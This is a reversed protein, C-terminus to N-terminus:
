LRLERAADINKPYLEVVKRFDSMAAEIRGIRKLLTGRCFLARECTPDKALAEDLLKLLDALPANPDAARKQLQISAWFAVYDAQEPDGNMAREAYLEAQDIDRKKLFVQARQFADAAELIRQVAEAEEPTGGGGDLVELYQKRQEPSTLTEFAQHIRAFVKAAADRLDN